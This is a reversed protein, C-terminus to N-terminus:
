HTELSNVMFQFAKNVYFVINAQTLTLYQLAEITSHYLIPGLLVNTDHKRPKCTNVMLIDVGKAAYMNVRSLMDQIYKTQTLMM